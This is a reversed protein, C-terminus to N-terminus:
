GEAETMGLSKTDTPDVQLYNHPIGTRETREEGLRKLDNQFQRETRVVTGTSNNFYDEASATSRNFSVSYRRTTLEGCTPCSPPPPPMAGELFYRDGCHSFEYIM